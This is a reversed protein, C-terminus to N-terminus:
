KSFIMAKSFHAPLLFEPLLTVRATLLIVSFCDDHACFSLPYQSLEKDACFRSAPLGGRQVRRYFGSPAVSDTTFFWACGGQRYRKHLFTLTRCQLRACVVLPHPSLTSFIEPFRPGGGAVGNANLLFLFLWVVFYATHHLLRM